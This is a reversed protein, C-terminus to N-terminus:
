LQTRTAAQLFSKSNMVAARGPKVYGVAGQRTFPRRALLFRSSTGIQSDGIQLAVIPDPLPDRMCYLAGYRYVGEELSEQTLVVHSMPPEPSRCWFWVSWM